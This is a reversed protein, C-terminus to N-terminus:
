NDEGVFNGSRTYAMNRNSLSSHDGMHQVLSRETYAVAYEMMHACRCLKWDVLHVRDHWKARDNICLLKEQDNMPYRENLANWFPRAVCWAVAGPHSNRLVRYQHPPDGRVGDATYDKYHYLSLIGLREIQKATALANEAWHRSPLTDDQLTLVYESSPCRQFADEIAMRTNSYTGLRVDRRVVPFPLDPVEAPSADDYVVAESLDATSEFLAGVLRCLYDRRIKDEIYTTICIPVPM